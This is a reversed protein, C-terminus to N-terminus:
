DVHRNFWDAEEVVPRIFPHLAQLWEFEEHQREAPVDVLAAFGNREPDILIAERSLFQIGANSV